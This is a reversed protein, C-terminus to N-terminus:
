RNHRLAHNIHLIILMLIGAFAQHLAAWMVPVHMLLTVVGLTAQCTAASALLVMWSARHRRALLAFLALIWCVTVFTLALLRHLWQVVAPETAYQLIINNSVMGVEPPMWHGDMLPFSNYILGAKHGAVLGGYILVIGFLVILLTGHWAPLSKQVIVNHPPYRLRQWEHFVLGLLTFGLVLHVVLRYPSVWPQDELGSKVMLWGVLGQAAGLVFIFALKRTQPGTLQHRLAFYVLPFFMVMGLMRGWLRHVYELWFIGKFDTLSMGKNIHQFEPSTQYRAFEAQWAHESFPPLFTFPDWTVMSLGSGTLRTVGGLIIMIYIMVCLLVLWNLPLRHKSVSM